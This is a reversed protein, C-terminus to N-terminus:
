AGAPANRHLDRHAFSVAKVLAFVPMGEALGLAAASRGTIRARVPQGADITVDVHGDPRARIGAVSGELVNLVSTRAPRELAVAVDRALIRVAVRSGEPRDLLPVALSRGDFALDTMRDAASHAAVTAHVITGADRRDALAPVDPRAMVEALPGCAAVAGGDVVAVHDALRIIEEIAHTVYLVPVGAGDALHELYPFVEEKRREDLSSLPEDMLLIDPASLLARGIAVRQAEGGSLGPTRRRLLPGIGLLEVVRDVEGTGARGRRRAGYLLNARVDMHPFLRDQQFVYGIRRREPPLSVGAARDFLVRGGVAIRGSDPELLGAVADVITTKGSGSPGFLGTVGRDPAELAARLRFGGRRLAIDIRIM